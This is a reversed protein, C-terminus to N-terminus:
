QRQFLRGAAFLRSPRGETDPKMFRVIGRTIGQTNKEDFCEDGVPSLTGNSPQEEDVADEFTVNLGNAGLTVYYDGAYAHYHGVYAQLQETKLSVSAETFDPAATLDVGAIEQTLRNAIDTLVDLRQCNMLVVFCANHEPFLRLIACQGNTGGTHAVINLGSQNHQSVGWGLGTASKLAKSTVPIENTPTQMALVSEEALWRVGTQTLGRELHARGFLILDAATMTPTTGAPSQGLTLYRGSCTHYQDPNDINPLHGLAARFRIVNAPRCIAKEMGLPKYIWEEMADFWSMGSVVEILRGAIAFAANSYSCGDGVPHVLPLQSCRLVYRAIHPGEEDHDDPFYDGAIGSSHNLLQKVTITQTAKVDAIEFDRLYYKVPQDLDVLGREVLKMMLVTTFVKTISGIQFISDTTAEVGTDMNLTGAAGQHLEGEHWLAMSVAPISHEQILEQAYAQLDHSINILM